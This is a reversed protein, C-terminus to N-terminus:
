RGDDGGGSEFVAQNFPYIINLAALVPIAFETLEGRRPVDVPALNLLGEVALIVVAYGAIQYPKPIPVGCNDALARVRGSRHYLPTLVALYLIFFVLFGKAFLLKNLNAGAVELNHLNTEGQRNHDRFFEPSDIGILRQGWSLEEGAGFVALLALLALVLRQMWGFERYGRRLRGAILVAVTALTMVTLWEMVGDEASYVDHFYDPNFLALIVGLGFLAAGNILVLREAPQM